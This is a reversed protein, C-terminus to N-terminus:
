QHLGLLPAWRQAARMNSGYAVKAVADALSDLEPLYPDGSCRIQAMMPMCMDAGGHFRAMRWVYYARRETPAKSRLTGPARGKITDVIATM